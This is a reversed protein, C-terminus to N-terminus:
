AQATQPELEVSYASPRVEARFNPVIRSLEYAVEDADNGAAARELAALHEELAVPSPVGSPVAMRLKKNSTPVMDESDDFLEEYLKEGPRLGIFEIKIEEHPVFGKLRILNEALDTIKIQEGMDLVFIEGGKGASAAVLVLQVAEPILMFFRKIDPHTVTLPGGRKLQERFTNIVSGNSGLVNGFRVTSFKTSSASNMSMAMFEAVRKTAGMVNTPNVAKDTSIMVFSEVKHRVAMDIMNKTGFINNKIAEAPNLEMLPVHKHAAAHFVIHPRHEAFLHRLCQCDRMDGVVSKVFVGDKGGHLEHDIQFLGNEYRDFMVLRAPGYKMIQRCLESGISGGAGTVLVSKKRFYEKVQRIDTRVPDRQLLDELSLPKIQLASVKGDLIDNLGPLKKVPLNYPRCVEYIEKLVKPGASPIAILIEEPGHEAVVEALAERTGFIPVGHMLLGKKFPDDDLFGIAQYMFKPNNQMDRVAQEGADGAGYLLVKKGQSGAQLYETYLRIFLRGGGSIIVLLLWDLLYVSLPYQMDGLLYRVGVFFIISGVSAAKVIRLLNGSSLYRWLDRNLGTQLFIIVRVSLLLPLYGTFKELFDPPISFEFRLNFALYSALVCQLIHLLAVVYRRYEIILKEFTRYLKVGAPM